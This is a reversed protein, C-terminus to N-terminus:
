AWPPTTAAREPRPVPACRRRVRLSKMPSWSTTTTRHAVAVQRALTPADGEGVLVRGAGTAVPLMEMVAVALAVEAPISATTLTGVAVRELLAMIKSHDILLCSLSM